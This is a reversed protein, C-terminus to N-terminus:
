ANSTRGVRVVTIRQYRGLIKDLNHYYLPLLDEGAGAVRYSLAIDTRALPMHPGDARVRESRSWLPSELQCCPIIAMAHWAKSTCYDFEYIIDCCTDLIRYYLCILDRGADTVRYHSAM